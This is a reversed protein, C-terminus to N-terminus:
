LKQGWVGYSEFVDKETSVDVGRVAFGGSDERAFLRIHQGLVIESKFFLSLEAISRSTPKFIDMILEVYRINNVHGNEDIDSESPFFDFEKGSAFDMNLKKPEPLPPQIGPDGLNPIIGEAARPLVLKRKGMDV